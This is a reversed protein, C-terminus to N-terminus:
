DLFVQSTQSMEVKTEGIIQSGDKYEESEDFIMSTFVIPMIAKNEMHNYKSLERLFEIGNYYRNELAEMINSQINNCNEWFDSSQNLDSEILMCSTFDGIIKNVDKHFPYRNFVTLNIAHKPQNSWYGLVKSFATCLISSVTVNNEKARNPM